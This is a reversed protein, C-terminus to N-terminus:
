SSSFVALLKRHEETLKLLKNNSEPYIQAEQWYQKAVSTAVGIKVGRNNLANVLYAYDFLYILEIVFPREMGFSTTAARKPGTLVLYYDAPHKTNIDLIGEQKGYYKINVTKGGLIGNAFKGDSGKYAASQHLKIEFLKSAIFEGIHGKEAPRSIIKTIREEIKNRDCICKALEQLVGSM